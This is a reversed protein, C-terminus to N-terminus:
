ISLIRNIEERRRKGRKVPPAPKAAEYMEQVRKAGDEKECVIAEILALVHTLDCDIVRQPLPPSGILGM